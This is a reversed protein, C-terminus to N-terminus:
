NENNNVGRMKDVAYYYFRHEDKNNFGHLVSTKYFNNMQSPLMDSSDDLIIYKGIKNEDIYTQIESGMVKNEYRCTRDIILKSDTLGKDFLIKNLLEINARKFRWTSSLICKVEFKKKLANITRIFPKLNMDPLPFICNYKKKFENAFERYEKLGMQAIDGSNNLVGDIDLFITLQKKM